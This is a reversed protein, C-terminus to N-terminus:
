PALQFIKVGFDTITGIGSHSLTKEARIEDGSVTAAIEYPGSAELTLRGQLLLTLQTGSQTYQGAATDGSVVPASGDNCVLARDLVETATREGGFLLRGATIEDECAFIGDSSVIRRWTYPLPHNEISTLEYHAALTPEPSISDRCNAM